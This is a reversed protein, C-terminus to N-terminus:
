FRRLIQRDTNKIIVGWYIGLSVIGKHSREHSTFGLKKKFGQLVVPCQCIVIYFDLIIEIYCVWLYTYNLHAIRRANNKCVILEIVVNLNM